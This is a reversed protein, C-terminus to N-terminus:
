SLAKTTLQLKLDSGHKNEISSLDSLDDDGRFGTKLSLKISPLANSKLSKNKSNLEGRKEKKKPIASKESDSEDCSSQSSSKEASKKFKLKLIQVSSLHAPSLM